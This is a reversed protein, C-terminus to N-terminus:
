YFSTNGDSRVISNELKRRTEVHGDGFLVNSDIFPQGFARMESHVSGCVEYKTADCQSAHLWQGDAIIASNSHGPEYPGDSVGDGDLDPNGSDAFDYYQQHLLLNLSYGVEYSISTKIFHVSWEDVDPMPVPRSLSFPCFLVKEPVGAAIDKWIVHGEILTGRAVSTDWVRSGVLSFPPPYEGGNESVYVELGIGMQKLNNMCLMVRTQRKAKGLAPLLLAILLAIISIVVLLEVLTFARCGYRPM